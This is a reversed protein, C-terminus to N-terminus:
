ERPEAVLADLRAQLLALSQTWYNPDTGNSQQYDGPPQKAQCRDEKAQRPGEKVQRPGEQTQRPHEKDRSPGESEPPANIGHWLLELCQYLCCHRQLQLWDGADPTRQLYAGLLLTQADRGLRDGRAVVALDFWPSGMACYEWDIAWLKGGSYLRNAYLLDNHCLVRERLGPAVIRLLELVRSRCYQWAPDAVWRHPLQREYRLLRGHLDLRQQVAPLQHIGRLLAAVAPPSSRNDPTGATHVTPPLYDCVLSGLDPNFYRPTPALQQRSAMELARWEVQRNLGLRRHDIGDIRVVYRQEAAVLASYNSLGGPLVRVLQPRSRLQEARWRSWHDLTQDLRLQVAPPLKAAM